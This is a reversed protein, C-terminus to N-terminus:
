NGMAEAIMAADELTDEENWIAGDYDDEDEVVRVLVKGNARAPRTAVPTTHAPAAPSPTTGNTRAAARSPTQLQAPFASTRAPTSSNASQSAQKPASASTTPANPTSSPPASSSPAPGEPTPARMAALIGSRSLKKGQVRASGGEIKSASEQKTETVAIRSPAQTTSSSGTGTTQTLGLASGVDIHVTETEQKRHREEVRKEAISRRQAWDEDTDTEAQGEPLRAGAVALADAVRNGQQDVTEKSGAKSTHARVHRLVTPGARLARLAVMYRIM